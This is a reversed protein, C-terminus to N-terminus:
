QVRRFADPEQREAEIMAKEYGEPKTMDFGKEKAVKNILSVKYAETGKEPGEEKTMANPVDKAVEGVEIQKSITDLFSLFKERSEGKLGLAVEVASDIQQPTFKAFRASTKLEIREAKAIAEEAKERLSANEKTLAEMETNLKVLDIAQDEKPESMSEGGTLVTFHFKTQTSKFQVPPLNVAPRQGAGVLAVAELWLKKDKEDGFMVTDVEISRGPYQGDKACLAPLLKEYGIQPMVEAYIMGDELYTREVRGLAPTNSDGHADNTDLKIHAPRISADYALVAEKLKDPIERGDVTKSDKFPLIPMKIPKITPIVPSEEIVSDANEM